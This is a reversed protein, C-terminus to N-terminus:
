IANGAARDHAAQFSLLLSLTHVGFIGAPSFRGGRGLVMEGIVQNPVMSFVSLTNILDKLRPKLHCYRHSYAISGQIYHYKCVVRLIINASDSPVPVQYYHVPSQIANVHLKLVLIGLRAIDRYLM